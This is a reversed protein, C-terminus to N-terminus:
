NKRSVGRSSRAASTSTSTSRRLTFPCDFRRMCPIRRDLPPVRSSPTFDGVVKRGSLGCGVPRAFRFDLKCTDIPAGPARPRPRPERDRLHLRRPCRLGARRAHHHIAVQEDGSRSTSHSLFQRLFRDDSTFKPSSSQLCSGSPYYSHLSSVPLVGAAWLCVACAGEAEAQSHGSMNRAGKPAVQVARRISGLAARAASM